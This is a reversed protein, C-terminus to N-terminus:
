IEIAKSQFVTLAGGVLHLSGTILVQDCGHKSVVDLADEVSKAIVTEGFELGSERALEVFIELLDKQTKQAPDPDM